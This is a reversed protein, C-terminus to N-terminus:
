EMFDIIYEGDTYVISLRGLGIQKSLRHFINRATNESAEIFLSGNYFGARENDQLLPRVAAIINSEFEM